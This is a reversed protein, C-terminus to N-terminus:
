VYLPLQGLKAAKTAALDAGVHRSKPAADVLLHHRLETLAEAAIEALAEALVRAPVFLLQGDHEPEHLTRAEQDEVFRRAAEIREVLLGEVVEATLRAVCPRRDEERRVNEGLDLVDAVPDSDDAVAPKDLHRFQTLQVLDADMLHFDFKGAGHRKGRDPRRLTDVADFEVIMAHTADDLAAEFRQHLREAASAHHIEDAVLRTELLDEERKIAALPRDLGALGSRRCAWGSSNRRVQRRCRVPSMPMLANPM